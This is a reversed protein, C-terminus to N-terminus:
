LGFGWVLSFGAAGFLFNLTRNDELLEFGRCFSFGSALRVIKLQWALIQQTKVISICDYIPALLEQLRILAAVRIEPAIFLITTVWPM